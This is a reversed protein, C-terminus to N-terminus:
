QSILEWTGAQGLYDPGCMEQCRGSWKLSKNILIDVGKKNAATGHVVVQLQYGGGGEGELGEM